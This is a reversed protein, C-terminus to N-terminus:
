FHFNLNIAGTGGTFSQNAGNDHGVRFGSGGGTQDVDTIAIGNGEDNVEWVETAVEGSGIFNLAVAWGFEAAISIKPAIFYEVGAFGRAGLGFVTGSSQSM